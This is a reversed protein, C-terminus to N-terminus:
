PGYCSSLPEPNPSFLYGEGGTYVVQGDTLALSKDTKDVAINKDTAIKPMHLHEIFM